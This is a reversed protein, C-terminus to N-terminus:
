ACPGIDALLPHHDSFRTDISVANATCLGPSMLLHDVRAFLLSEPLPRDTTPGAAGAHRIGAELVGTFARYAQGRDVANLDGLVITPLTEAEVAQAIANAIALHEGAPVEFVGGRGLPRPMHLAYLIVDGSDTSVQLRFGPLGGDIEDAIPDELQVIPLNTYVGISPLGNRRFNDGEPQLQQENQQQRELPLIDSAANTFRSRLETDHSESLEVGVILDPVQEFVLFGLDNDSFFNLGANVTGVRISDIPPAGDTSRFPLLVSVVFFLALSGTLALFPLSRRSIAIGVALIGAVIIIIPLAVAVLDMAAFLSRVLYWLWPLVPLLWLASKTRSANAPRARVEPDPEVVPSIVAAVDTPSIAM